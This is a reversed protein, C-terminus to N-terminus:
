DPKKINLGNPINKYAKEIAIDVVLNTKDAHVTEKFNQQSNKNL